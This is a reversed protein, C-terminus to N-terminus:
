LKACAKRAPGPFNTIIGDVGLRALRVAEKPQNVTWPYIELGASRCRRVFAADVLRARPDIAACGLLVARAIDSRREATLATRVWPHRRKVSRLFGVHESAVLVPQGHLAAEHRVIWSPDRDKVDLILLRCRRGLALVEELSPIGEGRFRADFWSGADMKRLAAMPLGRVKGAGDATRDVTADHIVAVRGDRTLRFDFELADAGDRLAKRFSAHTNEPATGSAGRHAVIRIM